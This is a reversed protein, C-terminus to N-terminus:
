GATEGVTQKLPSYGVHNRYIDSVALHVISNADVVPDLDNFPRVNPMSIWFRETSGEIEDDGIQREDRERENGGLQGCETRGCRIPDKQHLWLELHSLVEDALAADNSVGFRM